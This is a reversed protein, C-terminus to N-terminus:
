EVFQLHVEPSLVARLVDRVLEPLDDWPADSLTASNVVDVGASVAERSLLLSVGSLPNSAGAQRSDHAM